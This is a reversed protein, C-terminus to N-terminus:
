REPRNVHTGSVVAICIRDRDLQGLDLFGVSRILRVLASDDGNTSPLRDLQLEQIRILADGLRQGGHGRPMSQVAFRQGGGGGCGQGRWVTRHRHVHRKAGSGLQPSELPARETGAYVGLSRM